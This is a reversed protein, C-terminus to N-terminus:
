EIKLYEFKFNEPLRKLVFSETFEDIYVNFKGPEVRRKHDLGIFSLDYLTLVFKVRMTEGVKLTIKEFKKLQRMPRPVSAYEDNLYLMVVEKGPMPGENKVDVEVRIEDQFEHSSLELRSYSFRSYSLGHGFPYLWEVYNGTSNEISTHDYTTFGNPHLPYTVPLRGSPNCDGFLVDAIAEPGRTGPLFGILFAQSKEAIETLVRPRGGLYVVVLPTDLAALRKGLLLQPSSITLNSINGDLEAYSEEGICLIVVDSKKAEEIVKDTNIYSHFDVGETTIEYKILNM